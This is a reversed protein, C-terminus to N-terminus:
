SADETDFYSNDFIATLAAGYDGLFTGSVEPNKTYVMKEQIADYEGLWVPNKACWMKYNHMLGDNISFITHVLLAKRPSDWVEAAIRNTTLGTTIGLISLINASQMILDSTAGNEKRQRWEDWFGGYDSKTSDNPDFDYEAKRMIFAELLWSVSKFPWDLIWGLAGGGHIKVPDPARSNGLLRHILDVDSM